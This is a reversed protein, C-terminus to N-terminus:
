ELTGYIQDGYILIKVREGPWADVWGQTCSVFRIPETRIVHMITSDDFNEVRIDYAFNGNPFAIEVAYCEDQTAVYVQCQEACHLTKTQVDEPNLKMYGAYGIILLMPVLVVVLLAIVGVEVLNSIKKKTSIRLKWWWNYRLYMFAMGAMFGTVGLMLATM